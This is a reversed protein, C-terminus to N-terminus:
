PAPCAVGPPPILGLEVIISTRGIPPTTRMPVSQRAACLKPFNVLGDRADLAYVAVAGSAECAAPLKGSGTEVFLPYDPLWLIGSPGIKREAIIICRLPQDSHKRWYSLTERALLRTDISYATLPKGIVSAVMLYVALCGFIVASAMMMLRGTAGVSQGQGYEGAPFLIALGMAATASLPLVWLPKIVQFTALAGAILIALPALCLCAGILRHYPALTLGDGERRRSTAFLLVAPVIFLTFCAVLLNVASTNLLALDNIKQTGLARSVSSWGHSRLWWLHPLLILIFILGSVYSAPHHFAARFRPVLAGIIFLTALAFLIEYKTLMGVGAVVGLIIADRWRREELYLLGFYITAAWFPALTLNHNIQVAYITSAPSAVFLLVAFAATERSAFLRVTKWIFLAAVAVCTQALLMLAFIAPLGTRLALDMMWSTVPPHKSYALAWERGWYAAELTDTHLNGFLLAPGVSWLAIQFMLAVLLPHAGFFRERGAGPSHTLFDQSVAAMGSFQRCM